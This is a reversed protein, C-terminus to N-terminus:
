REAIAKIRELFAKLGPKELNHWYDPYGKQTWTFSTHTSDTPKFEYILLGYNEPKDEQEWFGSWYSYSIRKHFINELIVGHDSFKRADSWEGRFVISSGPKWDTITETGDYFEKCIEPNTLVDWVRAVGKNIIITETATPELRM